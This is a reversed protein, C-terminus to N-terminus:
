RESMVAMIVLVSRVDTNNVEGRMLASVYKARNGEWEGPFLRFTPFLQPIESTTSSFKM